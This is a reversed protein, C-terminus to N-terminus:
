SYSSYSTEPGIEPARKKGGALRVMAASVANQPTLTDVELLHPHKLIRLVGRTSEMLFGRVPLDNHNNM